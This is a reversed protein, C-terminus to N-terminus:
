LENFLFAMLVHLYKSGKHVSNESFRLPAKIILIHGNDDHNDDNEHNNSPNKFNKQEPNKTGSLLKTTQKDYVNWM